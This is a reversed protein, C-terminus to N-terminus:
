AFARYLNVRATVRQPMYPASELITSELFKAQGTEHEAELNEHLPIVYDLSAGGVEIQVSIQRGSIVPKRTVHSARAAGTDVPTRRKSENTEVVAEEYLARAWENPMNKAARDLRAALKDAGKLTWGPIM